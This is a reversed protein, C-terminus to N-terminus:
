GSAVTDGKTPDTDTGGLFDDTSVDKTFRAKADFGVDLWVRVFKMGETEHVGETLETDDRLKVMWETRLEVDNHIMNFNMVHIGDPDIDKAIAKEDVSRNRGKSNRVLQMLGESDTISMMAM